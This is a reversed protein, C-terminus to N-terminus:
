VFKNLINFLNKFKKIETKIRAIQNSRITEM